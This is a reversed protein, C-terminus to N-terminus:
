APRTTVARILAYGAVIVPLVIHHYNLNLGAIALYYSAILIAGLYLGIYFILEREFNEPKGTAYLLYPPVLFFLYLKTARWINGFFPDRYFSAAFIIALGAYLLILKGSDKLIQKKLELM